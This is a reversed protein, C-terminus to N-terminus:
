FFAKVQVNGTHVTPSTESARGEYNLIVQLFSTINKQLSLKWLLNSGPKLGKLMEQGVPTFEEGIFNNNVVDM